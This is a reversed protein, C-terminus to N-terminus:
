ATPDVFSTHANYIKEYVLKRNFFWDRGEKELKKELTM